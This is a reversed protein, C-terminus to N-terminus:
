QGGVYGCALSAKDGVGELLSRERKLSCTLSPLPRFRFNLVFSAAPM